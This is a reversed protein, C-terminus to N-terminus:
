WDVFGPIKFLSVARETINIDEDSYIGLNTIQPSSVSILEDFRSYWNELSGYWSAADTTLHFPRFFVLGPHDGTIKSSDNQSKTSLFSQNLSDSLYLGFGPGASFVSQSFFLLFFTWILVFKDFNRKKLGM